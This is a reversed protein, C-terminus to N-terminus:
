IQAVVERVEFDGLTAYEPRPSNKAMEVAGRASEETEHLTIALGKGDRVALWYGGVLGPAQKVRPIINAKLYENSEAERGAQIMVEGVVAYM